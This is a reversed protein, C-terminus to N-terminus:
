DLTVVAVVAVVAVLAAVATMRALERPQAWVEAREYASRGHRWVAGAVAFLAASVGLLWPADRHAAVGLVVGAMALFSFGSRQWALDTRERQAATERDLERSPM